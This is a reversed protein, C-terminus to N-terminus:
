VLEEFSEAIVVRKVASTGEIEIEHRRGPAYDTLRFPEASTVTQEHVEVGDAYVRLTLDDYDAALVEGCTFAVNEVTDFKKSKWLFTLNNLTDSDWQEIYDGVMLHLTDSLPDYRGATAYVDIFVLGADGQAPDFIFGGQTDGNDYFAVYRNDLPYAHISSPNIDDRWEDPTFYDKTVIDVGGPKILVLGDGSPYLVGFNGLSVIGRKSKGGQRINIADLNMNAPNAGNAVYADNQAVAVVTTGFNGCGILPYDAPQRYTVPWAHPQGPYSMCLQNVSVGALVGNPLAIMSTLDDPPADWLTSPLVEGLSDGKVYDTYDWESDDIEVEEVFLYEASEGGAATRYIRISIINYDGEPTGPIDTIEVVEGPSWEVLPLPDSPPGEEGIDTVYTFVYSRTERDEEAINAYTEAWTGNSTDATITFGTIDIEFFHYAPELDFAASYGVAVVRFINSNLTSAGGTMGDILVSDGISLANRDEPLDTSYQVRARTGGFGKPAGIETVIGSNQDVNTDTGVDAVDPAPLGLTWSDVPYQEGQDTADVGRVWGSGLATGEVEVYGNLDSFLTGSDSDIVVHSEGYMSGYAEHGDNTIRINGDVLEVTVGEEFTSSVPLEDAIRVLLDAFSQATNGAVEVTVSSYTGVGTQIGIDISYVTADNLLGTASLGTKDGGVDIVIYGKIMEAFPAYTMKPVGDGTYYTRELTDGAIPGRAVDVDAAWSMWYGNKKVWTGSSTVADWGAGSVGISFSDDNVVTVEYLTDNVQHTGANVGAIFVYDGSSLGHATSSIVSPNATSVNTAIGYADAGATAGFRYIAEIVGANLPEIVRRLARFPRVEGSYLKTNQATQAANAPLLEDSVRPLEGAFPGPLAIKM